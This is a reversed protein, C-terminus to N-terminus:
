GLVVLVKGAEELKRLKAPLREQKLGCQIINCVQLNPIDAFEDPLGKLHQNNNFSCLELKKMGSVTKPLTRVFGSLVMNTVNTFKGLAEPVDIGNGEYKKFTLELVKINPKAYEFIRQIFEEYGLIDIYGSYDKNDEQVVVEDSSKVKTEFFELVMKKIDDTTGYLRSYAQFARDNVDFERSKFANKFNPKFFERLGENGKKELFAVLDIQHDDVNMFQSSEFHIQYVPRPEGGAKKSIVPLIDHLDRVIYLPGQKAYTWHYNSHQSSATCWRTLPPGALEFSADSSLPEVIQWKSDEFHLKVNERLIKKKIEAKTATIKELMFEKTLEYLEMTDAVKNIDHKGDPLKLKFRNFKTLDEKIKYLDEFWTKLNDRLQIYRSDNYGTFDDPFLKFYQLIIWQTYGGAKIVDKLGKPNEKLKSTPDAKILEFLADEGMRRNTIRFPIVEKSKQEQTLELDQYELIPYLHAVDADNNRLGWRKKMQMFAMKDEKEPVLYQEMLYDLKTKDMKRKPKNAETSKAM